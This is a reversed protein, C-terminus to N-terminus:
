FEGILRGIAYNFMEGTGERLGMSVHDGPTFERITHSRLVGIFSDLGLTRAATIDEGSFWASHDEGFNQKPHTHYLAVLHGGKRYGILYEVSDPERNTAPQTYYFKNGYMVIAGGFEWQEGAHAAATLAAFAAQQESDFPIADSSMDSYPLDAHARVLFHYSASNDAARVTHCAALVCVVILLRIM